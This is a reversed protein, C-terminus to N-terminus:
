GERSVKTREFDVQYPEDVSAPKEDEGDVPRIVVVHMEGFTNAM